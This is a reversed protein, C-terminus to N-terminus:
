RHWGAIDASSGLNFTLADKGTRRVLGTLVQGPGLEIFTTVGSHLMHEMSRQWQVCGCLQGILEERMEQPTRLERADVNAVLPVKLTQFASERVAKELGECAPKMFPTHFAGSVELPMLKRIGMAPGMQAARELNTKAGSIAIQGPCNINAVYLGAENCLRSVLDPEAGLTAMMSGPTVQGAMHMLRGRERVLRVGEELELGGAAVIATYEGLSHGAVYSPSPLASGLVSEAAALCALSVVMVAPQANVTQKLEEAPGEFCLSSLSFGLAADAREFVSRAAPHERFLDQGM